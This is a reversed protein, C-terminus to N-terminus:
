CRINFFRRSFTSRLFFAYAVMGFYVAVREDSSVGLSPLICTKEYAIDIAIFRRDNESEREEIMTKKGDHKTREM